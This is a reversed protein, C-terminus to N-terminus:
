APRALGREEVDRIGASTIHFRGTAPHELVLRAEDLKRLRATLHDKRRDRLAVALEDVSAGLESGARYLMLLARDRPQLDRLIVPQGGIEEVAPVEKAVLDGVAAQAEDASMGAHCSRLLEAVVWDLCGVVLTADQLNADIGDALHAADRKNRLDYVM